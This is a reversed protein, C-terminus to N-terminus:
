NPLHHVMVNFILLTEEAANLYMCFEYEVPFTCRFDHLKESSRDLEVVVMGVIGVGSGDLCCPIGNISNNVPLCLPFM